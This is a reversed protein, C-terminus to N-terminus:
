LDSSIWQRASNSLQYKNEVLLTVVSGKIGRPLLPQPEEPASNIM